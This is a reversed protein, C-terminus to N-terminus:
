KAVIGDLVAANNNSDTADRLMREAIKGSFRRAGAPLPNASLRM